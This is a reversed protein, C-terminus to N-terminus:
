SHLLTTRLTPDAHIQAQTFRETVWRKRSFLVTQDTHHPSDPNASESYTLITRTLPGNRALEVAMIFSSGTIPGPYSGNTSLVPSPTEIVNFCGEHDPCGPLPVSAYRQADGLPIGLPIHNTDFFRVADALAHQAIPTSGNIGRPTTLPHAPDFPIKQWMREPENELGAFFQRWLVAGRSGTGTRTNWHALVDCAVAVDTMQGDTAPLEPHARCMAVVDALDLEASNDRSGLM